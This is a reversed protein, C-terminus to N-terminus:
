KGLTKGCAACFKGLRRSVPHHCDKPDVTERRPRQVTPSKAAKTLIHNEIDTARRPRKSKPLTPDLYNEIINREAEPSIAYSEVDSADDVASLPRAEYQLLRLEVAARIWASRSVRADHAAATVREALADTVPFSITPM